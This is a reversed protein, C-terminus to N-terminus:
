NGWVGAFGGDFFRRAASYAVPAATSHSLKKDDIEFPRMRDSGVGKLRMADVAEITNASDVVDDGNLYPLLMKTRPTWNYCDSKRMEAIVPNNQDSTRISDRFNPTLIKDISNLDGLEVAKNVFRKAMGVDDLKLGFVYPVYTAFSPAFYDKLDIGDMNNLASFAAYSMLFLKTGFGEPSQHGELLSKATVGSLDYPGSMPAAMETTLTHGREIQREACMAVAGGESYGTVFLHKGISVGLRKAIARGPAIMDIGSRCNDEGFPYPHVSLNDGLGLADPMLVAYGGTAFAMMVYEPEPYSNEGTYRSPALERDRITSHFYLVLGKPASKPLILLGSVIAPKGHLDLTSYRVRLLQIASLPASVELGHKQCEAMKLILSDLSVAGNKVYTPEGALATAVLLMMSAFNVIRSLKPM